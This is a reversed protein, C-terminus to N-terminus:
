ASSSARRSNGRSLCLFYISAMASVASRAAFSVLWSRAKARRWASLGSINLAASLTALTASM